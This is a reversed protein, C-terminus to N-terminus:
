VNKNELLNQNQYINGIVKLENENGDSGFWDFNCFPIIEKNNIGRLYFCGDEFFVYYEYIEGEEKYRLIDGDYIDLGKSDSFTTWLMPIIDATCWTGFYSITGNPYIHFRGQLDIETQRKKSINEYDESQGPPTFMRETVKDWLRMKFYPYKDNM